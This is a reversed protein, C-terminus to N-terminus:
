NDQNVYLVFLCSANVYEEDIENHIGLIIFYQGTELKIFENWGSWADILSGGSDYVSVGFCNVTDSLILRMQESETISPIDILNDVMDYGYMGIYDSMKIESHDEGEYITERSSGLFILPEIQDQNNDIKVTYQFIDTETNSVYDIQYNIKSCSGLTILSIVVLLIRLVARKM